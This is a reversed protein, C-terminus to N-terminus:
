KEKADDMLYGGRVYYCLCMHMCAIKHVLHFSLFSFRKHCNSSNLVYVLPNGSAVWQGHPSPGGPRFTAVLTLVWRGMNVRSLNGLFSTSPRPRDLNTTSTNSCFGYNPASKPDATMKECTSDISRSNKDMSAALMTVGKSM